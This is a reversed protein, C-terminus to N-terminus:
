NSIWIAKDKPHYFMKFTTMDTLLESLCNSILPISSTTDKSYEEWHEALDCTVTYLNKDAKEPLELYIRLEKQATHLITIEQKQANWECHYEYYHTADILPLKEIEKQFVTIPIAKHFNEEPTTTSCSLFFLGLLVIVYNNTYKM